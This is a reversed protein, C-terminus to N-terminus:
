LEEESEEDLISNKYPLKDEGYGTLLPKVYTCDEPNEYFTAGSMELARCREEMTHANRHRDFGVWFVNRNELRIIWVGGGKAPWGLYLVQEEEPTMKRMQYQTTEIFDWYSSWWKGGILRLKRCFEDEETQNYSREVATFRDLGLFDLEVSPVFEAVIIGGVSPWGMVINSRGINLSQLRETPERDIDPFDAFPPHPKPIPNPSPEADNHSTPTMTPSDEEGTVVLKYMAWLVCTFLIGSLAINRSLIAM